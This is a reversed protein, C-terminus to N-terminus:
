IRIGRAPGHCIPVTYNIPFFSFRKFIHAGTFYIDILAEFGLGLCLLEKGGILENGTEKRMYLYQGEDGQLFAGCILQVAFDTLTLVFYFLTM